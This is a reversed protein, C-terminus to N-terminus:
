KRNKFKPYTIIAGVLALVLIVGVFILVYNTNSQTDVPYDSTEVTVASDISSEAPAITSIVTEGDIVEVITAYTSEGGNTTAATTTNGTSSTSNADTNTTVSVGEASASDTNATVTENAVTTTTSGASATTGDTSTTDASATTATTSSTTSNTDGDIPLFEMTQSPQPGATTPTTASTTEAPQNGDPIFPLTVFNFGLSYM